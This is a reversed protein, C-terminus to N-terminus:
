RQCPIFVIDCRKKMMESTAQLWRNSFFRMQRSRM